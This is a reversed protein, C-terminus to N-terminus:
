ISSGDVMYLLTPVKSLLILDWFIIMENEEGLHVNDAERQRFQIDLSFGKCPHIMWGIHFCPCRLSSFLTGFSTVENTRQPM